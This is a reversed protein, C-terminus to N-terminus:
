WFEMRAAFETFLKISSPLEMKTTQNYFNKGVIYPLTTGPNGQNINAILAFWLFPIALTSPTIIKAMYPDENFVHVKKTGEVVESELEMLFAFLETGINEKLITDNELNVIHAELNEFPQLRCLYSLVQHLLEFYLISIDVTDQFSLKHLLMIREMLKEQTRIDIGSFLADTIRSLDKRQVEDKIDFCELYAHYKTWFRQESLKGADLTLSFTIFKKMYDSIDQSEIGYITQISRELHEQDIALIVIINQQENFIHHLRELVKVAYAPACRDLEDILLIIPKEESLNKLATRLADLAEKFSFYHDYEHTAMKAANIDMRAKEFEEFQKIADFPLFSNLFGGTLKKALEVAMRSLAKVNESTQSFQDTTKEIEDHLASVIAVAPEEYYDYEWSNYRFVYYPAGAGGPRITQLIKKRFLELVFSKGRGWRGNISFTCGGNSECLRDVINILTNIFDNRALRDEMM